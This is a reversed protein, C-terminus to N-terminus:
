GAVAQVSTAAVLTLYIPVAAFVKLQVAVNEISVMVLAPM